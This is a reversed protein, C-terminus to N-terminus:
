KKHRESSDDTNTHSTDYKESQSNDTTEPDDDNEENLLIKNGTFLTPVDPTIWQDKNIGM